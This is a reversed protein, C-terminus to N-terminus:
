SSWRIAALMQLDVSVVGTSCRSAESIDIFERRWNYREFNMWHTQMKEIKM